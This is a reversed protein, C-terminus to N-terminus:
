RGEYEAKVFTFLDKLLGDGLLNVEDIRLLATYLRGIEENSMSHLLTNVTINETKPKIHEISLAVMVKHYSEEDLYIDTCVGNIGLGVTRSLYCHSAKFQQVPGNSERYKIFVEYGELEGLELFADLRIHAKTTELRPNDSDVYVKNSERVLHRPFYHVEIFQDM